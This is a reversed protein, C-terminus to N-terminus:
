NRTIGKRTIHKVKNTNANIYKTFKKRLKSEMIQLAVHVTSVALDQDLSPHIASHPSYM